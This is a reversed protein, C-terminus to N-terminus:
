ECSIEVDRSVQFNGPKTFVEMDDTRKKEYYDNAAMCAKWAQCNIKMKSSAGGGGGGQFSSIWESDERHTSEKICKYRTAMFQNQTKEAPGEWRLTKRPGNACGCLMVVLTVLLIKEM